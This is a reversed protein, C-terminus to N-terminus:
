IISFILVGSSACAGALGAVASDRAVSAGIAGFGGTAETAGATGAMETAGTMEDAGASGAVGVAEAGTIDM